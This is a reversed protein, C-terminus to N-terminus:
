QGGGDKEPKNENPQQEDGPSAPVAIEGNSDSVGRANLLDQITLTDAPQSTELETNAVDGTQTVEGTLYELANQSTGATSEQESEAPSAPLPNAPTNRSNQEQEVETQQGGQAQGDNQGEAQTEGRSEGQGDEQDNSQGEALANDQGSQQGDTQTDPPLGQQTEGQGQAGETSGTDSASRNEGQGTNGKLFEMANQSSGATSKANPDRVPSPSGSDATTSKETSGQQGPQTPSQEPSQTDSAAQPNGQSSNKASTESDGEGASGGGKGLGQLFEMANQSVGATSNASPDSVANPSFTGASDAQDSNGEQGAQQGQSGEGSQGSGVPSGAGNGPKSGTGNETGMASRIGSSNEYIQAERQNYGDVLEGWAELEQKALSPDTAAAESPTYPYEAEEDGPQWEDGQSIVERLQNRLHKQSEEPLKELKQLGTNPKFVDEPIIDRQRNADRLEMFQRYNDENIEVEQSAPIEPEAPAADEVKAASPLAAQSDQAFGSPTFLYVLLGVLVAFYIRKMM